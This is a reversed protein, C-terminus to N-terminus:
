LLSRDINTVQLKLEDSTTYGYRKSMRYLFAPIMEEGWELHVSGEEKFSIFLDPKQVIEDYNYVPEKPLRYYDIVIVGIEKPAVEFGIDRQVIFPYFFTPKRNPHSILGNWQNALIKTLPYRNYDENKPFFDAKQEESLMCEGGQWVETDEEAFAKEDTAIIGGAKYYKYDKPYMAIYNRGIKEVTISAAKVFPLLADEVKQTKKQQAALINFMELSAEHMAPVFDAVPRFFGGQGINNLSSFDEYLKDIRIM